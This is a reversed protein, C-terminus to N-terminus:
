EGEGSDLNTDYSEGCNPCNITAMKGTGYPEITVTTVADCDDCPTYLTSM